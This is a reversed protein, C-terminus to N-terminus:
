NEKMKKMDNNFNIMFNNLAEGVKNISDVIYKKDEEKIEKPFIIIAKIKDQM